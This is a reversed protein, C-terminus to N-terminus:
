FYGSTICITKMQNHHPTKEIHLSLTATFFLNNNGQGKKDRKQRGAVKSDGNWVEKRKKEGAKM